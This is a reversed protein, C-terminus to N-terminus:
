GARLHELEGDHGALLRVWPVQEAAPLHALQTLAHGRGAGVEHQDIV